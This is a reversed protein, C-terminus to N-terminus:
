PKACRRRKQGVTIATRTSAGCASSATEFISTPPWQPGALEGARLGTHFATLSVVYNDRGFHTQTAELLLTVEEANFPDVEEHAQGVERYLKGLRTAPNAAILNKEVAETLAARLAAIILRVSDKSLKREAEDKQKEESCARKEANKRLLSIVFEKVRDRTLKELHAEGLVPLIHLRFSRDYRKVSNTALSAEWLPTMTQDFFEKLTPTTSTSNEENAAPPNKAAKM